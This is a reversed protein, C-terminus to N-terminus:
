PKRTRICKEFDRLRAERCAGCPIACRKIGSGKFLDLTRTILGTTSNEVPFVGLGMKNAGLDEVMGKFSTYSQLEASVAENQSESLYTQIITESYSGAIGQYAIKMKDTEENRDHLGKFLHVHETM